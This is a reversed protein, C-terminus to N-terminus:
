NEFKALHSICELYKENMKDNYEDANMNKFETTVFYKDKISPHSVIKYGHRCNRKEYKVYKPLIEGNHGTRIVNDILTKSIKKKTKESHNRDRFGGGNQRTESMKKRTSESARDVPKSANQSNYGEELSNYFTIFKDEYIHAMSTNVRMLVELKVNDEGFERIAKYLKSNKDSKRSANLHQTLRGNAGYPSGDCHLLNCQGIYVKNNPFTLM